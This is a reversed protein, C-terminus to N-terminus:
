ATHTWLGQESGSLGKREPACGCKGQRDMLLGCGWIIPISGGNGERQSHSHVFALSALCCAWGGRKFSWAGPFLAFGRDQTLTKKGPFQTGVTAGPVLCWPGVCKSGFAIRNKRQLIVVKGKPHELRPNGACTKWFLCFCPFALSLLLMDYSLAPPLRILQSGAAAGSLGSVRRFFM